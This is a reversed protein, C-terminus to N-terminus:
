FGRRHSRGPRRYPSRIGTDTGALPHATAAVKNRVKSLLWWFFLVLLVTLVVAAIM